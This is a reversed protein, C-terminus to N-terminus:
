LEATALLWWRGHPVWNLEDQVIHVAGRNSHVIKTAGM